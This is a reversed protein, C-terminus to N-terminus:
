EYRLPLTVSIVVDLNIAPAFINSHLFVYNGIKGPYVLVVFNIFLESRINALTQGGSISVLLNQTHHTATQQDM